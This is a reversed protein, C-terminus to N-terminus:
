LIEKIKKIEYKKIKCFVEKFIEPHDLFYKPCKKDCDNQIECTSCYKDYLNLYNKNKAFFENEFNIVGCDLIENSITFRNIGSECGLKNKNFFSIKSQIYLPLQNYEEKYVKAYSIFTNFNNIYSEVGINTWLYPERVLYHTIKTLNKLQKSIHLYNKILYNKSPNLVSFAIKDILNNENLLNINDFLQDTIKGRKNGLGDYSISFVINNKIYFDIDKLELLGNTFVRIKFKKNLLQEQERLFEVLFKIQNQYLLPEGGFIDIYLFDNLFMKVKNFNNILTQLYELSPKDKTHSQSCYECNLNCEKTLIFTLEQINTSINKM